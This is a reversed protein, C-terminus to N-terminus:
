RVHRQVQRRPGPDSIPVLRGPRCPGHDPQPGAPRDLRRGPVPDGRSHAGAPDSVFLVYLRRLFITDVTFFDCALLGDAQVRLFRRWSTDLGRPVQPTGYIPGAQSSRHRRPGRHPMMILRTGGVARGSRRGPRRSAPRARGTTQTWSRRVAPAAAPPRRAAGRCGGAEVPSPQGRRASGVGGGFSRGCRSTVGPVTKRHCRRRTLRFHVYGLRTPRGGTLASIAASMSRSAVLLELQPYWLIWPSSSM